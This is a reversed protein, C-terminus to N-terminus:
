LFFVLDDEKVCENWRRIMYRNMARMNQFPRNCMEIIGKHGFHTDAILFTKEPDIM